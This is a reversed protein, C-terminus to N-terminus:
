EVKWSLEHALYRSVVWSMNMNPVIVTDTNPLIYGVEENKYFVDIIGNGKQSLAINRTIATEITTKRDAKWNERLRKLSADLTPYKGLIMDRFGVSHLCSATNLGGSINKNDLSKFKLNRHDIGQRTRRLPPRTVYLVQDIGFNMYGLSPSGIDFEEDSLKITFLHKSTDVMDYLQATNSDEIRVYVPAGKYRCVSNDIKQRLDNISTIACKM